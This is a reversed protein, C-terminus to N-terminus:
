PKFISKFQNYNIGAEGILRPNSAGKKADNHYDSGGTFFKVRGGYKHEVEEKIQQGSMNGQYTTKDYTYCSEMGDLGADILKDIYQDRSVKGLVESDVREDILYPHALVAIGRCSKIIYIAELPSVKNRKVNLGPNDRVMLKAQSWSQAYGKKAMAEFIHKRQVEEPLRQQRNGDVDQYNLIDQQYDIPMGEKTLVECLKHYADVKSQKARQVEQKFRDCSWDLEYGIIHVDDVNSDCSFEDGQVLDLELGRAFQKIEVRKGEHTINLVPGIDHDVMGIAKMGLESAKTILRGPSDNGDSRTTHCHLDCEYEPKYSNITIVNRKPKILVEM